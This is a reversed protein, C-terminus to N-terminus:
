FPRGVHRSVTPCRTAIAVVSLASRRASGSSPDLEQYGRCEPSNSSTCCDVYTLWRNSRLPCDHAASSYVLANGTGSTARSLYTSVFAHYCQNRSVLGVVLMNGLKRM